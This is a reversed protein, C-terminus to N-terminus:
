PTHANPLVLAPCPLPLFDLVLVLFLRAEAWPLPPSRVKKKKLPVM